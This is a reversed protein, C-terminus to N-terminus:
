NNYSMKTELFAMELKHLKLKDASLILQLSNVDIVIPFALECRRTPVFISLQNM